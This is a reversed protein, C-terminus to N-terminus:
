LGQTRLTKYVSQLAFKYDLLVTCNLELALACECPRISALGHKTAHLLLLML